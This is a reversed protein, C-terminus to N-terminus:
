SGLRPRRRLRLLGHVGERAAGRHGRGDVGADPRPVARPPGRRWAGAAEATDTVLPLRLDEPSEWGWWSVIVTRIGASAIERMQATVIKASSSSYLGRAPYYPTSLVHEGDDDAVYWHAWRGDRAPTSYWPYYFIASEAADARVYAPGPSGGAIPSGLLAVGIALAGGLVTGM